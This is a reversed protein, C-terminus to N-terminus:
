LLSTKIKIQILNLLKLSRIIYKKNYIKNYLKICSIKYYQVVKNIKTM